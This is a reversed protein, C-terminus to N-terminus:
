LRFAVEMTAESLLKGQTPVGSPATQGGQGWLGRKWRRAAQEAEALVPDRSYRTFHWALGERVLTLSVDQGGVSVRVVLRGYRDTDRVDVTVEKGFTLASIFQKAREDFDQGKEPCDIGEM